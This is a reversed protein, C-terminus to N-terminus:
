RGISENEQQYPLLVPVRNYLRSESEAYVCVCVHLSFYNTSSIGCYVSMIRSVIGESICVYLRCNREDSFQEGIYSDETIDRFSFSLVICFSAQYPLFTYLYIM